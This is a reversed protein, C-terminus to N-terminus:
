NYLGLDKVMLMSKKNYQAVTSMQKQVAEDRSKQLECNIRLADDREKFLEDRERIARQRELLYFDRQEKHTEMEKTLRENKRRFIEVETHKEHLEVQLQKVRDNLKQFCDSVQLFYFLFTLM